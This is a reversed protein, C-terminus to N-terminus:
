EGTQNKYILYYKDVLKNKIDNIYKDKLTTMDSENNESSLKNYENVFHKFIKWHNKKIKKFNYSSKNFYYEKIEEIEDFEDYYNIDKIIENLILIENYEEDTLLIYYSSLNQNRLYDFYPLPINNIFKYKKGITLSSIQPTLESLKLIKELICNNNFILHHSENKDMINDILDYFTESNYGVIFHLLM